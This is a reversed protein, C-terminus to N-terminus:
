HGDNDSIFYYSFIQPLLSSFIFPFSFFEFKCHEQFHFHSDSLRTRSKTVKRITGRWAERDVSNELRSYQLLNGNGEGPSRGLGPISGQTEQVAPLLKVMQAM